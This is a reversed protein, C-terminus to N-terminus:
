SLDLEDGQTDGDRSINRVKINMKLRSVLQKSRNSDVGFGNARLWIMNMLVFSVSVRYINNDILQRRFQCM